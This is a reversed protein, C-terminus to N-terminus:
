QKDGQFWDNIQEGIPANYGTLLREVKNTKRNILYIYPTGEIKNREVFKNMATLREVAAKLAETLEESILPAEYGEASRWKVLLAEREKKDATTLFEVSRKVGEDNPSHLDVMFIRKVPIQANTFFADARHCYPCLPSYVMAIFRDGEIEGFGLAELESANIELATRTAKLEAFREKSANTLNEGDNAYIEGFFLL